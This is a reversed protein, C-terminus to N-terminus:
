GSKISALEGVTLAKVPLRGSLYGVEMVSRQQEHAIIKGVNDGCQYGKCHGMGCRTFVRVQNIGQSQEQAAIQIQTKSVQECRCILDVNNCIPNFADSPLYYHELFHRLHRMKKLKKTLPALQKQWSGYSLRGLQNALSMATIRAKIIAGEAGDIYGSDGTIWVNKKSSLGYENLKPHWYKQLEHWHLQCNAAKALQTNPIIGDHTFLLKCDIEHYRGQSQWSVKQLSKEGKAALQQINQYVPIGSRNIRKQWKLGQQILSSHHVLAKIAHPLYHKKNNSQTLDLFATPKVGSDLLQNIYLYVLPGSGVVVFPEEPVLGSAKMLTQAGGISMVGPLNWGSFATPREMAGNCLVVQKAHLLQTNKASTLGLTVSQLNTTLDWIRAHLLKETQDDLSSVLKKGATYSEGLRNCLDSNEHLNKTLSRYIQGGAQPQEDILLAEVNHKGLEELVTLGAPGAGVIAVDIM